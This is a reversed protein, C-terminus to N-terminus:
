KPVAVAHGAHLSAVYQQPHSHLYTQTDESIIVCHGLAGIYPTLDTVPEGDRELRFALQSEREAVLCRPQLILRWM